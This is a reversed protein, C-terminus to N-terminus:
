KRIRIDQIHVEVKDVPISALDKLTYTIQEVLNQSVARINTGHEVVVYLDVRAGKETSEVQIGRRLRQKPLIKAIGDQITPPTMGVVGYSELATYGAIDAIVGNDITLGGPIAESM